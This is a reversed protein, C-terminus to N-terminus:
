FRPSSIAAINLIRDDTPTNIVVPRSRLVLAGGTNIGTVRSPTITPNMRAASLAFTTAVSREAFTESGGFTGGESSTTYIGVRTLLLPPAKGPRYRKVDDERNIRGTLCSALPKMSFILERSCAKMDIFHGSPLEPPLSSSTKVCSSDLAFAMNDTM